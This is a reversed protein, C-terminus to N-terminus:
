LHGKEEGVPFIKIVYSEPHLLEGSFAFKGDRIVTSDVAVLEFPGAGTCLHVTKGEANGSIKGEILYGKSSCGASLILISLAIVPILSIKKM